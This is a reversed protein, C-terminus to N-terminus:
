GTTSDSPESVGNLYNAKHAIIHRVGGRPDSVDGQYRPILHVHLHFVTQGAAAGCNIGINYGDPQHNKEIAAKAQDIASILAAHEESTAEFWTPIHRRPILLAHGPSVPYADWFGFVQDGSLFIRAESPNCFPCEMARFPIETGDPSPSRGKQKVM